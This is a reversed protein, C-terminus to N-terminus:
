RWMSTQAKDIICLAAVYTPDQASKGQIAQSQVIYAWVHSLFNFAPNNKM